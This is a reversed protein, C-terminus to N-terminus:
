ELEVVAGSEDIVRHYYVRRWPSGPVALVSSVVRSWWPEMGVLARGYCFDTASGYQFDILVSGDLGLYGYRRPRSIAPHPYARVMGHRAKYGDTILGPRVVWAGDSDIYGWGPLDEVLALGESFGHANLFRPEIVWEGAENLYGYLEDYEITMGHFSRTLPPDVAAKEAVLAPYAVEQEGECQRSHAEWRAVHGASVVLRWVEVGIICLLAVVVLGFVVRRTLRSNQSPSEDSNPESQAM